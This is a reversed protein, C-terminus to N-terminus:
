RVQGGIPSLRRPALGAQAVVWDDTQALAVVPQGFGSAEWDGSVVLRGDRDTVIEIDALAMDRGRETRLLARVAEKGAARAALWAFQLAESGGMADFEARERRGLIRHAWVRGWFSRDPFPGLPIRRCQVNAADPFQAVPALWPTSVDGGRAPLALVAFPAPLFFRKDEWGHVRYWVSGDGALVDLDSRIRQTDVHQVAALCTLQEGAARPPGYVEIAAARFPFIVQGDVLHEQTWLGIVQGAADLVVPDLIFRPVTGNRFFGEFSLVRLTAVAGAQDTRQIATVGQWSPGHFMGDVYLGDASWRSPRSKVLFQADGAPASPYRDAVLVTAEVVPSDPPPQSADDETLNRIQVQIRDAEGSVRRAAVRLIQSEKGHPWALWRNARVDRLGVVV